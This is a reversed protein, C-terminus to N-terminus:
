VIDDAHIIQRAHLSPDQVHDVEIGHLASRSKKKSHM